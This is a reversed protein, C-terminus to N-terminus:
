GRNFVKLLEKEEASMGYAVLSVAYVVAFAAVGATMKIMPSDFLGSVLWCAAGSLILCLWIRSMIRKYISLMNFGLKKNYYINMVIVSGLLYSAATGVAAAYYGWFYTGAVTIIANVATSALLVYTRFGLLNKARLVSLCVNVCLELLSAPMLILGIVYVDEYGDGLWLKIFTRGLIVFGVFAASLLMFQVRGARVILAQTNSYREDDNVLANTVSPLMVGSIATSLQQFMAFILLAMSYVAVASSGLIAGVVVNDLNSNVQSAVSTIFMLITYKMSEKFLCTDWDTFRVNVRLVLKIYVLEVAIVLVTLFLDILVLALSDQFVSLVLVVLLIRAILRVLKIGNGLLFHNYGTIVGNVVNEFIHAVLGLALFIYLQKAKVLESATLGSAYITDLQTYFVAAVAAAVLSLIGAQIFSMAIYNPIKEEKKDAIFRAIYRMMTGGLGLDLVMFSSTFASITKYVGYAENGIQGLIYPTLFFGYLANVIMLIYSIVVGYKVQNKM